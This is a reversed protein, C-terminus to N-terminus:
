PEISIRTIVWVCRGAQMPPAVSYRYDEVEPGFDPMNHCPIATAPKAGTFPARVRVPFRHIVPLGRGVARFSRVQPCPATLSVPRLWDVARALQAVGNTGASSKWVKFRVFITSPAPTSGARIGIVWVRRGAQHVASEDACDRGAAAQSTAM